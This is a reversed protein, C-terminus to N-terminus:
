SPEPLRKGRAALFVGALILSFAILHYSRLSEGLFIIALLSGLPPTLYWFVGARAGGILEVGRNFFIYALVSAFITVYLTALATTLDIQVPRGSLYEGMFLPTNFVAGVTFTVGTFSLWHIDPRKRLYATYIAWITVAALIWLDGRNLEFQALRTLDGRAIVVLMGLCSLGIGALQRPTLRDGFILFCTLAILVPGSSQVVFGNLATTHDLGLYLFTNFCGAGAIGLFVLIGWHARIMPWDRRIAPLAVPLVIATALTWRLWALAIPPVHDHLGRAVITNGSWFVATLTLLLPANYYLAAALKRMPSM